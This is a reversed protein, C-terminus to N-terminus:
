CNANPHEAIAYKTCSSFSGATAGDIVRGYRVSLSYQPAQRVKEAWVFTYLVCIELPRKSM